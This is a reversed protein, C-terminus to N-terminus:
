FVRNRVKRDILQIFGFRCKDGVTVEGPSCLMQGIKRALLRAKEMLFDTALVALSKIIRRNNFIPKM